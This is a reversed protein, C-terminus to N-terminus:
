RWGPHARRNKSCHRSDSRQCRSCGKSFNASMINNAYYDDAFKQLSNVLESNGANASAFQALQEATLSTSAPANTETQTPQKFYRDYEAQSIESAESGAKAGSILNRAVDEPTAGAALQSCTPSWTVSTVPARHLLTHNLAPDCSLM